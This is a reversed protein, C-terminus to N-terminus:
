PLFAPQRWWEWSDYSSPERPRESTWAESTIAIATKVSPPVLAPDVDGLRLSHPHPLVRGTPGGMQGDLWLKINGAFLLSEFVPGLALSLVVAVPLTLTMLIAGLRPRRLRERNPLLQWLHAALLVIVPVLFFSVLLAPVRDQVLPAIVLAAVFGLVVSPLGAM